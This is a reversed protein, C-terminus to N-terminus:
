SSRGPRAPGPGSRGPHQDWLELAHVFDEEAQASADITEAALGADIWADFARREDQASQWHYALEAARSADTDPSAEDAIARAFAAHLRTREGPLLEGYVAEQVLAHRFAFRAGAIGDQPVLVHRAVAEGLAVDLIPEANGTVSALVAPAIRTGGASALRVLDQAAREPDRDAGPPSRAAHGSPTRISDAALLEEAYFANGQSRAAIRELLKPDPERM